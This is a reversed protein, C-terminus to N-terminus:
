VKLEYKFALEIRKQLLLKYRRISTRYIKYRMVEGQDVPKVEELFMKLYHEANVQDHWNGLTKEIENLRDYSVQLNVIRDAEVSFINLLYRVQKLIKRIEHLNKNKDTNLKNLKRIRDMHQEFVTEAKRALEQENCRSLIETTKETLELLVAAEFGAISKSLETSAIAEKEELYSLFLGYKINLRKEYVDLLDQQVHLDRLVGAPRYILKLKQLENKATKKVDVFRLFSYLARMRKVSLRLQHISEAGMTERAEELSDEFVIRQKDFYEQLIERM